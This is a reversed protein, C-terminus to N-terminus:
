HVTGSSTSQKLPCAEKSGFWRYRNRAVLDYLWDRMPKPIAVALYLLPWLGGLLRFVRLVAASRQYFKGYMYLVVTDGDPNFNHSQFFDSAVTSFQDVVGIRHMKDWRAILRLFRSCLNCQGDYFLIIGGSGM